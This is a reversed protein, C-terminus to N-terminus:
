RMITGAKYARFIEGYAERDRVYCGAIGGRAMVESCYSCTVCVKKKDAGGGNLIDRPMDPYALLERGLGVLAAGGEGLVGAAVQPIYERLWSYGFGSMAVSPEAKQAQATLAIGRCVGELPHEPAAMAGPMNRDYPRNVWARGYPTGCTTSVYTVGRERMLELLRLPEALDPLPSFRVRDSDADPGEDRVVGWGYPWGIADYLNFRSVLQFGDDPVARRVGDLMDLVMRIRNDFAGGYRGERGHAALLDSTLYRHCAKIDVGDFGLECALKAADVFQACVAELEADTLLPADPADHAREDLEPVRAVLKPRVGTAHIYRGSDQLQIYCLPTHGMARRAEAKTEELLKGIASATATNLLLQNDSARGDPTFAVAEFHILGSGGAAYRRYRRFTLEGPTGDALADRGEVPLAAFRTPATKDGVRVPGRLCSLDDSWPLHLGMAVADARLEDAHRYSFPKHESM